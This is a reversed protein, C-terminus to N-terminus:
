LFSIDDLLQCDQLSEGQLTEVDERTVGKPNEMVDLAKKESESIEMRRDM